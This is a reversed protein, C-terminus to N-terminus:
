KLIENSAYAALIQGIFLKHSAMKGSDVVHVIQCEYSLISDRITPVKTEKGEILELGAKKFKDVNRGSYSGVINIAHEIKDSPINVTFEKIGETLLKYSYRSPSVAVTIVPIMWLEGITKWLLAMVNPKESSDMTVLLAARSMFHAMCDYPQIEKRNDALIIV